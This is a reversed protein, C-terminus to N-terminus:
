LTIRKNVVIYVNGIIFYLCISLLPINIIGSLAYINSQCALNINRIGLIYRNDDILFGLPVASISNLFFVFLRHKQNKFISFISVFISIMIAPISIYYFISTNAYLLSDLIKNCIYIDSGRYNIPFFRLRSQDIYAIFFFIVQALFTSVSLIAPLLSYREYM